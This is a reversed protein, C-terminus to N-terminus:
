SAGAVTRGVLVTVNDTGGAALADEILGECAQKSSTM